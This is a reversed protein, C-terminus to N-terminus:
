AVAASPASTNPNGQLSSGVVFSRVLKCRMRLLNNGITLLSAWICLM